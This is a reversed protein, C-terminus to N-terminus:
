GIIELVVFKGTLMIHFSIRHLTAKDNRVAVDVEIGSFLRDVTAGNVDTATAFPANRWQDVAFGSDVIGLEREFGSSVAAYLASQDVQFAVPNLPPKPFGFRQVVFSIPPQLDPFVFITERRWDHPNNGRLDIILVGSLVMQWQQGTIDAPPPENVALAVPTILSNQVAFVSM